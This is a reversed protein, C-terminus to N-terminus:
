GPKSVATSTAPGSEAGAGDPQPTSASRGGATPGMAMIAATTLSRAWWASGTTTTMTFTTMLSDSGTFNAESAAVALRAWIAKPLVEASAVAAAMPPLAKAALAAPMAAVGLVVAATAAVAWAVVAAVALAGAVEVVEAEVAALLRMALSGLAQWHWRPLSLRLRITTPCRARRM